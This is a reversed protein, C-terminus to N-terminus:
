IELLISDFRSGCTFDELILKGDACYLLFNTKYGDLQHNGM